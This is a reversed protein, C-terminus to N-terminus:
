NKSQWSISPMGRLAVQINKDVGLSKHILECTCAHAFKPRNNNESLHALWFDTDEHGNEIMDAIFEAADNNSLHGRKGKIRKKLDNPYDSEDLMKEDYNSEIIILDSGKANNKIDNTIYGTDTAYCIKSTKTKVVYGFSSTTDHSTFLSHINLDRFSLAEHPKMQKFSPINENRAAIYNIINKDGIVPVNLYRSIPGVGCIHDSHVHTVFIAAIKQSDINFHCFGAKMAKCTIGADIIVATKDTEFVMCNGNSGSAISYVSLPM